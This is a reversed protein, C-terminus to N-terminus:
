TSSEQWLGEEYHDTIQRIVVLGGEEVGLDQAILGLKAQLLFFVRAM